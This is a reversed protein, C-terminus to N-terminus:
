IRAHCSQAYGPTLMRLFTSIGVNKVIRYATTRKTSILQECSDDHRYRTSTTSGRLRGDSFSFPGERLM